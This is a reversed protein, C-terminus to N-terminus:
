ETLVHCEVYSNNWITDNYFFRACVLTQYSKYVLPPTITFTYRYICYVRPTYGTFTRQSIALRPWAHIGKISPRYCLPTAVLIYQLVYLLVYNTPAVGTTKYLQRLFIFNPSGPLPMYKNNKSVFNAPLKIIIYYSVLPNDLAFAKTYLTM